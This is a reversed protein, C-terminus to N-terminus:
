LMFQLEFGGLSIRDGSALVCTEVQQGNVFTHNTSGLDRVAYRNHQYLIQAHHRSVRSDEIVM